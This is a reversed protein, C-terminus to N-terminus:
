SNAEGLKKAIETFEELDKTIKERLLSNLMQQYKMILETCNKLNQKLADRDDCQDIEDKIVRLRLQQELGIEFDEPKFM